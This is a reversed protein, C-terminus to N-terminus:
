PLHHSLVPLLQLLFFHTNGSRQGLNCALSSFPALCSSLFDSPKEPPDLVLPEWSSNVLACAQKPLWNNLTSPVQEM